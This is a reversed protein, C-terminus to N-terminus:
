KDFLHPLSSFLMGLSNFTNIMDPISETFYVIPLLFLTSLFTTIAHDNAADLNTREKFAPDLGKRMISRLAFSINGLMAFFAAKTAFEKSMTETNLNGLTSAYAVGVFGLYIM